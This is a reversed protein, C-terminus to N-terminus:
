NSDSKIDDFIYGGTSPTKDPIKKFYFHLDSGVTVINSISTPLIGNDEFNKIESNSLKTIADLYKQNEEQHM